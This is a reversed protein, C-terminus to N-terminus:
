RSFRESPCYGWTIGRPGANSTGIEVYGRVLLAGCRVAVPIPVRRTGLIRRWGKRVRVASPYVFVPAGPDLSSPDPLQAAVNAVNQIDGQTADILVAVAAAGPTWSALGAPPAPQRAGSAQTALRIAGPRPPMM